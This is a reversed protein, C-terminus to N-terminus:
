RSALVGAVEAKSVVDLLRELYGDPTEEDTQPKPVEVPSRGISPRPSDSPPTTSSTFNPGFVSGTKTTSAAGSSFLGVSLRHLLPPNTQSRPRRRMPPSIEIAHTDQRPLTSFPKTPPCSASPDASFHVTPAHSSVDTTTPCALNVLTPIHTSADATVPRHRSIRKPSPLTQSHSVNTDSLWPSPPSHPSSRESFSRSLGPSRPPDHRYQSTSPSNSLAAGVDMSFPSGPLVSPLSPRVTRELATPFVPPLPRDDRKKRSWFSARRAISQVPPDTEKDKRKESSSNGNISDSKTRMREGFDLSRRLLTTHDDSSQTDRLKQFSNARRMGDLVEVPPASAVFAVTNIDSSSSMTQPIINTLGLGLSAKALALTPPSQNPQGRKPTKWRSPGDSKSLSVMIEPATANTTGNTVQVTQLPIEEKMHTEASISPTPPLAKDIMFAGPSPTDGLLGFEEVGSISQRAASSVTAPRRRWLPLSFFHTTTQTTVVETRTTRTTEALVIPSVYSNEQYPPPPLPPDLPRAERAPSNKNGRGLM